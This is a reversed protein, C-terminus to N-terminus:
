RWVGPLAQQSHLIQLLCKSAWSTKGHTLDKELDQPTKLFLAKNQLRNRKRNGGEAEAEREGRRMEKTRVKRERLQIFYLVM